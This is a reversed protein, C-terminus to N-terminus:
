PFIVKINGSVTTIKCPAGNVNEPASISGSTSKASVNKESLLGCYVGGSTSRIELSAADFRELKIRGSVTKAYFNGKALTDKVYVGGSTSSVTLNAASAGELSIEGSVTKISVDSVSNVGKIDISGSTSSAGLSGKVDSYIDIEGSTSSVRASEFTFGSPLTIDGSVTKLTLASYESQPLYVTLSVNGFFGFQIREYWRRADVRTIKLEGNEVTIKNYISKSETAEIKCKGDKSPLLKVDSEIESINISEFSEAIEYTNKEFKISNMNMVGFIDGSFALACICIVLGLAMCIGSVATIIKKTKSM